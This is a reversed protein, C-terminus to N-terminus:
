ATPNWVWEKKWTICLKEDSEDDATMDDETEIMTVNRNTTTVAGTSENMMKDHATQHPRSRVM